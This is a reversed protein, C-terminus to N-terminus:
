KQARLLAGAAGAGWLDTPLAAWVGFLSNRTGSEAATWAKGDYILLTGQDGVSWANNASLGWVTNLRQGTRSATQSWATGDWRMQIGGDGVAWADQSGTGWVSRMVTPMAYQSLIQNGANNVINGAFSDGM